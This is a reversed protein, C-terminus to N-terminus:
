PAATLRAPAPHDGAVAHAEIPSLLPHHITHISAAARARASPRSQHRTNATALSPTAERLSHDPYIARPPTRPHRHTTPPIYHHPHAGAPGSSYWLNTAYPDRM